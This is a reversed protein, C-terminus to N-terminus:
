PAELGSRAADDRLKVSQWSFAGVAHCRQAQDLHYYAVPKPTHPTSLGGYTDPMAILQTGEAGACLM